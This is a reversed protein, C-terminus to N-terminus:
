RALGARHAPGRQAGPQWRVRQRLPDGAPAARRGARAHGRGPVSRASRAAAVGIIGGTVATTAIAAVVTVLFPLTPQVKLLLSTTYAGVAMLAGHGLSLQGNIGTLVTLGAAAIAFIAIEAMNYNWYASLLYSGAILAVAAPM